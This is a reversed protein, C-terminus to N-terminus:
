WSEDEFLADTSRSAEAQIRFASGRQFSRAFLMCWMAADYINGFRAFTDNWRNDDNRSVQVVFRHRRMLGYVVHDPVDAGGFHEANGSIVVDGLIVSPLEAGANYYWYLATARANLAGHERPLAENTWFTIGLATVEYPELFGGTVEQFDGISALEQMRLADTPDHPIVITTVMTGM